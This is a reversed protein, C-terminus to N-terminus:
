LYNNSAGLNVSVPNSNSDVAPNNGQVPNTAEFHIKGDSGKPLTAEDVQVTYTGPCVNQFQYYGNGPGTPGSGTVATQILKGTSDKLNVTVGNLGLENPDQIGNGNVDNWVFDGIKGSCIAAGARPVASLALFLSAAITLIKKTKM